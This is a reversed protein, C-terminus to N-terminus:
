AMPREAAPRRLMLDGVAQLPSKGEYLVRYVETVIPMEVGM